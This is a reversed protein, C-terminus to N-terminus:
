TEGLMAAGLNRSTTYSSSLKSTLPTTVISPNSKITRSVLVDGKERSLRDLQNNLNSVAETNGKLTEQIGQQVLVDAQNVWQAAPEASGGGGASASETNGGKGGAGGLAVGAAIMGAGIAILAVAQGISATSGTILGVWPIAAMILTAAGLSMCMEGVQILIQGLFKKFSALASEGSMIAQFMDTFARAMGQGIMMAVSVGVAGLMELGSASGKVFNEIVQQARQMTDNIATTTTSLDDMGGQAQKNAQTLERIQRTLEGTSDGTEDIIFALWDIRKNNQDVQGRLAAMAANVDGISARLRIYAEHAETLNTTDIRTIDVQKATERLAAEMEAQKRRANYIQEVLGLMYFLVDTDVDHMSYIANEAEIQQYELERMESLKGTAKELQANLDAVTKAIAQNNQTKFIDLELGAQKNILAILQYREAVDLKTLLLIANIDKARKTEIEAISGQREKIIALQDAEIKRQINAAMEIYAADRLLNLNKELVAGWGQLSIKMKEQEQNLKVGAAAFENYSAIASEIRNLADQTPGREVKRRAAEIEQKALVNNLAIMHSMAKPIPGGEGWNFQRRIEEEKEARKIEIKLLENNDAKLVDIDRKLREMAREQAETMKEAAPPLPPGELGMNAAAIAKVMAEIIDLIKQAAPDAEKIAGTVSQIGHTIGNLTPTLSFFTSVWNGGFAKATVEKVADGIARFKTFLGTVADGASDIIHTTAFMNRTVNQIAESVSNFANEIRIIAPHIATIITNVPGLSQAVKDISDGFDFTGFSLTPLTITLDVSSFVSKIKDIAVSAANVIGKFIDTPVVSLTITALAGGLNKVVNWVNSAALRLQNFGYTIGDLTGFLPQLSISLSGFEQFVESFSHIKSMSEAAGNISLKVTDFAASIPPLTPIIDKFDKFANWVSVAAERLQAFGYSIGAITGPFAALPALIIGFGKFVDSIDHIRSISEAVGNVSLKISDFITTIPPLSPISSGFEKIVEIVNSAVVKVQGLGYVVGNLTNILPKLSIDFGQFAESFTHVRSISEAVGNVSLKVSDFIVTLPAITPILDSFRKVAAITNIGAAQIQQLGYVVGNLTGSFQDFSVTPLKFGSFVESFSHMRSISEAVGNISLKISDFIATIPPIAPVMEKFVTGIDSAFMGLFTGMDGFRVYLNNAAANILRDLDTIAARAMQVAEPYPSISWALNEVDASTQVTALLAKNLSEVNQTAPVVSTATVHFIDPLEILKYVNTLLTNFSGTLKVIANGFDTTIAESVQASSARFSSFVASFNPLLQSADIASIVTVVKGIADGVKSGVDSFDAIIADSIQMSSANIAAFVSKFKDALPDLGVTTIGAIAGGITGIVARAINNSLNSFDDIIADSVQASSTTIYKFVSTFGTSLPDFKISTLQQFAKQLRYIVNEIGGEQEIFGSAATKISSIYNYVEVFPKISPTPIEVQIKVRNAAEENIGHVWVQYRHFANDIATTVTNFTDSLTKAITTTITIAQNFRYAPDPLSLIQKHLTTVIDYLTGFTVITPALILKETSIVANAVGGIKTYVSAVFKSAEASAMSYMSSIQESWAKNQGAGPTAVKIQTNEVVGKLNTFSHTLDDVNNKSDEISKGFKPVTIGLANFIIEIPRLLGFFMVLGTLIGNIINYIFKFIAFFAGAWRFLEVIVPIINTITWAIADATGAILIAIAELASLPTKAGTLYSVTAVIANFITEVAYSVAAFITLVAQAQPSLEATPNKLNMLEKLVGKLEDKLTTLFELIVKLGGAEMAIVNFAEAFGKLTTILGTLTKGQEEGALGFSELAHRFEELGNKSTKIEALWAQYDPHLKQLWKLLVAGQRNVGSIAADMESYIQREVGIRGTLTIVASTILASLQLSEKMNRTFQEIGRSLGAQFGLMMERPTALSTASMLTFEIFAQKAAKRALDFGEKGGKGFDYAAAILAAIRLQLQQVEDAAELAAKALGLVGKAMMEPLTIFLNWVILVGIMSIIAKQLTMFTRMAFNGFAGVQTGAKTAATGINNIQQTVQPGINAAGGAPLGGKVVINIFVTQSVAM